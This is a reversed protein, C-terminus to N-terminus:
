GYPNKYRSMRTKVYTNRALVLVSGEGESKEKKEKDEPYLWYGCQTSVEYNDHYASHCFAMGDNEDTRYASSIESVQVTKTKPIAKSSNKGIQNKKYLAGSIRSCLPKTPM